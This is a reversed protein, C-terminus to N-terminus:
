AENSVPRVSFVVVPPNFQPLVEVAVAPPEPARRRTAYRHWYRADREWEAARLRETVCRDGFLALVWLLFAGLAVFAVMVWVPVFM